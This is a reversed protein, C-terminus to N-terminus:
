GVAQGTGGVRAADQGALQARVEDMDLSRVADVVRELMPGPLAGAQNFVLIGDRFAMLTPISAIGVAQSLGQEADTDVKAHVVDPHQESSAEFVPGFQRCPGCWTAWWDVLVIGNSTVAQEFSAETLEVTAM